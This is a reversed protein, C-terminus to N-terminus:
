RVMGDPCVAIRGHVPCNWQPPSADRQRGLEPWARCNCVIAAWYHMQRRHAIEMDLVRQQLKEAQRHAEAIHPPVEFELGELGPIEIM